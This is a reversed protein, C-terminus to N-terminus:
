PRDTVFPLTTQLLIRLERNWREEEEEEEEEEKEGEEETVGRMRPRIM